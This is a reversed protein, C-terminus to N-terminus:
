AVGHAYVTGVLYTYAQTNGIYIIGTPPTNFNTYNDSVNGANGIYINNSGTTLNIGASAGIAINNYGTTANQLAQYGIATNNAGTITLNGAGSGAFFNQKGFSHLLTASGSYMIGATATTSPLNLNSGLSISGVSVNGSADRKVLTSATNASTATTGLTVAGNVTSATIDTDGTVSVAGVNNLTTAGGLPVAGGGSLGTGPNITITNNALQGNGVAGSLQTAPLTGSLNSAANAFIAYPVPTVPQLPTLGVYSGLGNSRVSIALWAPNGTFVTGFDLTTAFLGNTVGVALNTVTFGVQSGGSPANSLAFQFDYLGNAPNGGNQLQGQYTFATSQAEATRLASHLTCLAVAVAFLQKMKM